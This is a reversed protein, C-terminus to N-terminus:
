SHDSILGTDPLVKLHKASWVGMENILDCLKGILLEAIRVNEGANSYGRTIGERIVKDLFQLRRPTHEEGPFRARALAILASYTHNLVEFSQGEPTLTPLYMLNPLVADTFVEGLGTRDLLSAPTIQVLNLLLKTGKVKYKTDEDDLLNLIPPILLPWNEEVM